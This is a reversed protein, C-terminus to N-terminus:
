ERPFGNVVRRIGEKMVPVNFNLLFGLWKDGLKLYSLIQALHVPAIAEIAKIELIIEKEVLLDIRFDKHVPKDRYFLPILVERDVHVGRFSLEESLCTQYISELLGPGMEKHVYYASSVIQRGFLEIQDKKM